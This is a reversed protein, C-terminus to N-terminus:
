VLNGNGREREVPHGVAQGSLGPLPRQLPTSSKLSCSSGHVLCIFNQCSDPCRPLPPSGTFWRRWLLSALPEVHSWTRGPLGASTPTALIRCDVPCFLSQATCSSGIIVAFGLSFQLWSLALIKDIYPPCKCLSLIFFIIWFIIESLDWIFRHSDFLYDPFSDLDWSLVELSFEEIHKKGEIRMSLAQFAFRLKFLDFLLFFFFLWLIFYYIDKSFLKSVAIFVNFHTYGNAGGDWALLYWKVYM